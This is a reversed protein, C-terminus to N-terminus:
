GVALRMRENHVVTPLEDIDSKELYAHVWDPAEHLVATLLIVRAGPSIMKLIRAVAQGNMRPMEYDLIVLQPNHEYAIEIATEGDPAEWIPGVDEEDLLARVFTRLKEDDDVILLGPGNRRGVRQRLRDFVAVAYHFIINRHSSENRTTRTEDTRGDRRGEHSTSLLDDDEVAEDRPALFGDRPTGLHDAAVDAIEFSQGRRGPARLDDEM